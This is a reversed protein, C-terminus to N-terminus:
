TRLTEFDDGVYLANFPGGRRMWFWMVRVLKLIMVWMFPMSLCRWTATTTISAGLKLIMVWMFPMSLPVVAIGKGCRITTEFDDGM